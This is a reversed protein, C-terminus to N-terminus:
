RGFFDRRSAHDLSTGYTREPLKDYYRLWERWIMAGGPPVPSQQYQAAFVDSGIQRQLEKLSELPELEPHLAKGARHM